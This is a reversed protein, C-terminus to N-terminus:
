LTTGINIYGGEYYLSSNKISENVSMSASGITITTGPYITGKCVIKGYGRGVVTQTISELEAKSARLLSVNAVYQRSTSDFLEQKEPTLRNTRKLEILLDYLPKLSDIQKELQPIQALLVQQREITIPDAGLELKTKVNSASGITNAYICQGSLYRGGIIKSISGEAKICKGCNVISNLMYDAKIEGKVFVTCNEIFRSKLDGNCRLESGTIGSSLKINGGAILTASEVTGHIDINNGAEAVFGPMVMGYVILNGAVKLNGTSSDVNEKVIYTEHVNIKKGAFDIQGNIMSVISLGDESLATNKGLHSPVPKGKLQLMQKGKVSMGPTGETPFTIVALVQGKEVTQVIGLDHYDVNGKEDVKPASTKEIDFKFSITGDIGNVPPIGHAVVIKSNYVPKEALENLKETDINYTVGSAFLASELSKFSAPAGDGIPPEIEVCAEIGFNVISVHVVADVAVPEEVPEVASAAEATKQEDPPLQTLDNKISETIDTLISM